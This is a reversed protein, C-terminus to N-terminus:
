DEKTEHRDQKARSKTTRWAEAECCAHNVSFSALRGESVASSVEAKDESDPEKSSLSPTGPAVCAEQCTKFLDPYGVKQRWGTRAAKPWTPLMQKIWSQAQYGRWKGLTQLLTVNSIIWNSLLDKLKDKCTHACSWCVSLIILLMFFVAVAEANRFIKVYM